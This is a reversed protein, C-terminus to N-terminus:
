KISPPNHSSIDLERHNIKSDEIPGPPDDGCKAAHKYNSHEPICLHPYTSQCM